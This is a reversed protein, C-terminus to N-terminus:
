KEHIKQSASAIDLAEQTRDELVKMSAEGAELSHLWRWHFYLNSSMPVYREPSTEKYHNFDEIAVQVALRILERERELKLKKQESRSQLFLQFIAGSVGAIAGILATFVPVWESSM